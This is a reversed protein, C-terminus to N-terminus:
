YFSALMVPVLWKPSEVKAEIIEPTIEAAVKRKRAVKERIKSKPM